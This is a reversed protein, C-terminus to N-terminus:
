NLYNIKRYYNNQSIKIKLFYIGSAVKQNVSNQGNWNLRQPGQSLQQKPALIKVLQGFQNFVEMHVEADEALNVEITIIDSFPNPYLNIENQRTLIKGDLGTIAYKELSLLTSEHKVFTTTGKKIEPELEYEQQQKISWYKLTFANGETFGPMGLNDAASAAISVTKGAFHHPMLTVAGVCLGGDFVALEDGPQFVNVPLGGINLNMHAVGNGAFGPSFYTTAWTESLIVSSKPYAEEILLLEETNVKIKYGKGPVFNGINNKWGGLIGWNEISSGKEDQVKLLTGREILQQVIDEGNFAATLPYGIINWGNRLPIAFPYEPQLGFIEISDEFAVKLKYGETQSINGIYDKWGGLIGFNELANGKEDQIKVLSGNEILPQFLEIMDLSDLCYPSSFINWGPQFAVKFVNEEIFFSSVVPFSWNGYNDRARFVISHQGSNITNLPITTNVEVDSFHTFTLIDGQNYGPDQDFYYEIRQILPLEQTTASVLLPRSQTASWIGDSNKARFYLRHLGPEIANLAINQSISVNDSEDFVLKKGEGVTINEDFFYEIDAINSNVIEDNILFPKSHTLSWNGSRNKARFYLRHLGASLNELNINQTTNVNNSSTIQLSNGEGENVMEDVFYELHDIQEIENDSRVLVPKSHVLSWNGESDRTRFYLRHLGPSINDLPIHIDFLQESTGSLPIFSKNENVNDWFYEIGLIKLEKQIIIELIYSGTLGENKPAILFLIEGGNLTTVEKGYSDFEDTWNSDVFYKLFVDCTLNLQPLPNNLDYVNAKIKYSFGQPLNLKYYDIDYYDHITAGYVTRSTSNEPYTLNFAEIPTDNIEYVDEPVPPSIVNLYEVAYEIPDLLVAEGSEKKQYIGFLYKGPITDFLESAFVITQTIDYNSGNYLNQIFAEDISKILVNSDFIGVGVTGTYSLYGENKFTATISFPTNLIIPNKSLTFPNILQLDAMYPSNEVEFQIFNSCIGSDLSVGNFGDKKYFVALKYDGPKLSVKSLNFTLLRSDGQPIEINLTGVDLIHKDGHNFASTSEDPKFVALYITGLFDTQTSHNKVEINITAPENYTFDSFTFQNIELNAYNFETPSIGIVASQFRKFDRNTPPEPDKFDDPVLNSITCYCNEKGSWGWNFHFLSSNKIYGDCVFAHGVNSLGPIGNNFVFEISRGSYLIPRGANIENRLISKWEEDGIFEFTKDMFHMNQSYGFFKNLAAKTKLIDSSSGDKISYNMDLSFGVQKMLQSVNFKEIESNEESYFGPMNEWDFTTRGFIESLEGQIDGVPNHFYSRYGFGKEPWKHFRMIQAMATAVCGTPPQQTRAVDLFPLASNFPLRQDWKINDIDLLPGITDNEILTSSKLEDDSLLNSWEEKIIKPSKIPYKKLYRLQESYSNLFFMLGDPVKGAELKGTKGYALVPITADNGSVVIFGQNESVNFIFLGSSDIVASKLKKDPNNYFLDNVQTLTIERTSKLQITNQNKLYNIAVQKAKEIKIEEGQTFLFAFLLFILSLKKM